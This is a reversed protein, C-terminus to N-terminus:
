DKIATVVAQIFLDRPGFKYDFLRLGAQEVLDKAMEKGSILTIEEPHLRRSNDFVHQMIAHVTRLVYVSPAQAHPWFLVVRGGPRLVRRMEALLTVIQEQTFHEMVGLNFVGDFTESRFPLSFIDGQEIQKARPNNRSYLELAALSIDVATLAFFGHLDIDVQGSGCGAHLLEEGPKFRKRLVRVLNPRIVLRRYCSAVVEYALGGPSSKKKWYADWEAPPAGTLVVDPCRGLLFREPHAMFELWLRILYTGGRLAEEATLKSNGYTRAPLVIPIENVSFGNRVLVFLSEFFFPYSKSTVLSFIERPIRRLDYIRFAGSADQPLKLLSTTLVHGCVTLCRRLPNWGPLSGRKIYRSGVAMDYGELAALLRPIDRPDHTFDCDLTVLVDYGNEFAMRIGAQHASGIGQKGQRHIVSIRPIESALRDLIQWTGDPSNDDMFVVDADLDIACLERAMREVNGSENYTPVFILIKKQSM